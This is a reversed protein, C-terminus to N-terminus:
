LSGLMTTDKMDRYNIGLRNYADKTNKSAQIEDIIEAVSMRDGDQADERGKRLKTSVMKIITGSGYLRDKKKNPLNEWIEMYEDRSIGYADINLNKRAGEWVDNYFKKTGTVTSTKADLFRNLFKKMLEYENYTAKGTESFRRGTARKKKNGAMELFGQVAEYAGTKMGRKELEVMRQNARKALTRLDKYYRKQAM